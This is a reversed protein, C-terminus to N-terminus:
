GHEAMCAKPHTEQKSENQEPCKEKSSCIGRQDIIQQIERSVSQIASGNEAM